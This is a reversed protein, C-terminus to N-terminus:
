GSIIKYVDYNAIRKKVAKSIYKKYMDLLSLSVVSVFCFTLSDTNGLIIQPKM